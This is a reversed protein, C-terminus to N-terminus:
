QLHEDRAGDPQEASLNGIQAGQAVLPPCVYLPTSDGTHWSVQVTGEDRESNRGKPVRSRQLGEKM